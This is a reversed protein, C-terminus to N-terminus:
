TGTAKAVIVLAKLFFTIKWFTGGNVDFDRILLKQSNLLLEKCMRVLTAPYDLQRQKASLLTVSLIHM